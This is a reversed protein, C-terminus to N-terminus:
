RSPALAARAAGPGYKEDFQRWLEPHEILYRIAATPISSIDVAQEVPAGAVRDGPNPQVIMQVQEGPRYLGLGGGQTMPVLKSTDLQRAMEARFQPTGPELGMAAVNQMVTTMEQPKEVMARALGLEEAIWTPDYQQPLSSTDLGAKRALTLATAYATQKDPQKDLWDGIKVMVGLDRMAKEQNFQETQRAFTTEDRADSAKAREMNFANMKTTEDMAQKQLMMNQRQQAMGAIDPFRFQQVSLPISSDIPM